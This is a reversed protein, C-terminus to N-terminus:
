HEDMDHIEQEITVIVTGVDKKSSANYKNSKLDQRTAIKAWAVYGDATNFLVYDAGTEKTVKNRPLIENLIDVAKQFSDSGPRIQFSVHQLFDANNKEGTFQAHLYRTGELADQTRITVLSGVANTGEDIFLPHLKLDKVAKLFQNSNMKQAISQSITKTLNRVSQIENATLPGQRLNNESIEALNHPPKEKQSILNSKQVSDSVPGENQVPTYSSTSTSKDITLEAIQNKILPQTPKNKQVWAFFFYPWM